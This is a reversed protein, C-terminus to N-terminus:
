TVPTGAAVWSISEAASRCFGLSLALWAIQTAWSDTSHVAPSHPHAIAAYLLNVSVLLRIALLVLRKGM